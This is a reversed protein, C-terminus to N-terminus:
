SFWSARSAEMMSSDFQTSCRPQASTASFTRPARCVMSSFSSNMLSVRATRMVGSQDDPLHATRRRVVVANSVEIVTHVYLM